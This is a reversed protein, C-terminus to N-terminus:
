EPSLGHNRRGEACIRRSLSLTLQGVLKDRKLSNCQRCACRLNHYDWDGGKSAPVVMDVTAARSSNFDCDKKCKRFCLYCRWDDREFVVSRKVKSNWLGGGKRVKKRHSGLERKYHKRYKQKAILRCAQCSVPGQAKANAVEAGCKCIRIGRWERLCVYSCFQSEQEKCEKGCQLCPPRPKYTSRRPKPLGLSSFAWETIQDWPGRLKGRFPQEGARIAAWYCARGCYLRSDSGCSERDILNGCWRCYDDPLRKCVKGGGHPM